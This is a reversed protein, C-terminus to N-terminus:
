KEERWGYAVEEFQEGGIEIMESDILEPGFSEYFARAPDNDALVWVLMSSFDKEKLGDVVCHFLRRGLGKGQVEALLYIAYLEGDFEPYNGSREKGGSAFGVIKDQNNEVVYICQKSGAISLARKWMNEREEYSMRELFEDPVINKYTTRWSDVHVKAIGATDEAKAKRINM